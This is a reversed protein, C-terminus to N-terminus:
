RSRGKSPNYRKTEIHKLRYLAAKQMKLVLKKVPVSAEEETQGVDELLAAIDASHYGLGEKNEDYTEKLQQTEQHIKRALEELETAMNQLTSIAEESVTVTFGSM